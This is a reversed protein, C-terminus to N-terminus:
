LPQAKFAATANLFLLFVNTFFKAIPIPSANQREQVSLVQLFESHHPEAQIKHDNCLQPTNVNGEPAAKGVDLHATKSPIGRTACLGRNGGWPTAFTPRATAFTAGCM